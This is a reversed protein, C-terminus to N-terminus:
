NCLENAPPFDGCPPTPTPVSTSGVTGGSGNSAGYGGNSPGGVVNCFTATMEEECVVGTTPGQSSTGQTLSAGQTLDSSQSTVAQALAPSAALVLAVTLAASKMPLCRRRQGL